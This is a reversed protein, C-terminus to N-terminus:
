NLSLHWWIGRSATFSYRYVPSQRHSSLAIPRTVVILRHPSFAISLHIDNLTMLFDNFLDNPFDNVEGDNFFDNHGNTM